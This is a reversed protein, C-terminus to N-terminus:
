LYMQIITGNLINVIVIDLICKKLLIGGRDPTTLSAYKLAMIGCEGTDYVDHETPIVVIGIPEYLESSFLTPNPTQFLEGTTLDCMAVNMLQQETLLKRRLIM